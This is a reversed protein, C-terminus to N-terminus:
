CDQALICEVTESSIEDDDDTAVKDGCWIRQIQFITLCWAISALLITSVLLTQYALIGDITLTAVMATAFISLEPLLALFLWEEFLPSASLIHRYMLASVIFTGVSFFVGPVGLYNNVPGLIWIQIAVLPYFSLLLLHEWFWNSEINRNDICGKKRVLQDDDIRRPLLSTQLDPSCDM